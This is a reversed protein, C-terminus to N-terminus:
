ASILTSVAQLYQSAPDVSFHPRGNEQNTLTALRGEILEGDVFTGHLATQGDPYAYAVAKGTMEGEENVEGVM